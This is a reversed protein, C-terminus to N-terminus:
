KWDRPILLDRSWQKVGLQQAHLAERFSRFAMWAQDATPYSLWASFDGEDIRSLSSQSRTAVIMEDFITDLIELTDGREDPPVAAAPDPWTVYLCCSLSRGDVENPQFIWSNLADYRAWLIEIGVVDAPDDMKDALGHRVTESSSRRETRAPEEPAPRTPTPRSPAGPQQTARTVRAASMIEYAQYLVRFAWAEGGVDPHHIKSKLRYADRIEQLSADSSIGLIDSPDLQFSHIPVAHRM